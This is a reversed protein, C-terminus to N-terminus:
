GALHARGVENEVKLAKTLLDAVLGELKRGLLPIGVKIELNIEQKTRGGSEALRMRGSADGPKGPISVFLDALEPGTWLERQIITIEDGIFKQAFSPIGRAAQTQELTVEMGSDTPVIQVHHRLVHQAELVANRFAPDALMAHVDTAPADYVLEHTFRM